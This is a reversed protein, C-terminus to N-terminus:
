MRHIGGPRFTVKMETGLGLTSEAYLGHGLNACVRKALYLGMGTSEETSRGNEGTFFPDFIRPLDQPPIGIGEDRVTLTCGGGSAAEIAVLLKKSGPKTKSYKIANAVLQHLVFSMWKPDTEATSDGVVKPFVSHHICLKKYDHLVATALERLSVQRVNLDVEFRDLRATHLMMDLGRRMRETEEAISRDRGDPPAGEPRGELASEQLLLDIVALPTKMQHVWQMTFHRRIEQERRSRALEGAYAEHLGGLLRAVAQHERTSASHLVLPADLEHSRVAAANLERYFARKRFGDYALWAGLTFVALIALYLLSGSSVDTGSQHVDLLIVAAVFTIGVLFAAVFPLRDLAFDRWGYAPQRRSLERNM